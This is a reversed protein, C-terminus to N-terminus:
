KTLTTNPGDESVVHYGFTQLRAILHAYNRGRSHPGDTHLNEFYINKALVRDFDISVLIDYDHGEADVFLWEVESIYRQVYFTELTMCPVEIENITDYGKGHLHAHQFDLSLSAHQSTGEDVEYNDVFLRVIGGHDSIAFNHIELSPYDKYTQRLL